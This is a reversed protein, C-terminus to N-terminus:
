GRAGERRGRTRRRRLLRAGLLLALFTITTDAGGQRCACGGQDDFLAPVCHDTECVEDDGCVIPVLQGTDSCRGERREDICREVCEGGPPGADFGPFPGADAPPSPGADDPPNPGADIPDPGADDPHPGADTPDPGADSPDPGADVPDPGADVPQPGADVPQPGADYGADVVPDPGADYDEFGADGADEDGADQALAPAATCLLASVLIFSCHVRTM